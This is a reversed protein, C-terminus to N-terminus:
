FGEFVTPTMLPTTYIGLVYTIITIPLITILERDNLDLKKRILGALEMNMVTPGTAIRIYLWLSYSASLIVSLGALVTLLTSYYALSSLILFEGLFNLSLPVAINALINLFLCLVYLPMINLLGNINSIRNTGFREIIIGALLFLGSSVFGHSLLLFWTGVWSNYNDNCVGLPILGMHAVSSYAILRKLDTQRLCSLSGSILSLCSIIWIIPKFYETSGMWFTVNFKILGFAGIKLLIGALLVSGATPAEVHAQPLWLHFPYLPLKVAFAIFFGLWIFLETKKPWSASYLYYYDTTGLTKYITMLSILMCLSGILTYFFLYYSAKIKEVRYGYIGIMLFMPILVAEFLIYFILLDKIIFVGILLFELLLMLHIFLKRNKNISKWSILISWVILISTLWLLWLSITDIALTISLGSDKYIAYSNFLNGGSTTLDLVSILITLVICIIISSCLGWTFIAHPNILLLIISSLIPWLWITLLIKKYITDESTVFTILNSSVVNNEVLIYEVM